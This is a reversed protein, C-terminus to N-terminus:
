TQSGASSPGCDAARDNINAPDLLQTLEAYARTFAERDISYYIWRQDLPDRRDRILGSKRLQRLHHSILNQPLDLLGAMECNCTEGRMLQLVIRRRTADAMVRLFDAAAPSLDSSPAVVSLEIMM